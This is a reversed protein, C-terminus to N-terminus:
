GPWRFAALLNAYDDTWVRGDGTAVARWRADVELPAVRGADRTLVVWVSPFRGASWEKPSIDRDDRAFGTLSMEHALRGLVPVLNVYLNSVNFLLIGGPALRSAYIEMAERTVLHVPISDSAFADFVLLDYQEGPPLRAMTLRADGLLVRAEPACERLFTFHAEDRAMRVVVPDIEFFTWEHGPRAYCALTGAGLGLVGVRVRGDQPLLEDFVQGVPGIRAYYSLPELRRGGTLAQVGHITSGHFLLRHERDRDDVVRQVGFFSREIAVVRADLAEAATGVLLLVGLGGAFRVPWPWWLVCLVLPLAFVLAVGGFSDMRLGTLRGVGYLALALLGLAAASVVDRPSITRVASALRPAALLCAALLGIPYEAPTSFVAPAVVVNLVGGLAGGLALWLYFGTLRTPAPRSAALRQHCALGAVFLGALHLPIGIWAPRTADTLILAVPALVALPLLWAMVRDDVRRRQGFAMIFTVLYLALPVVWLLPIAAIDTTMYTTVSLMLSSPVLALLTWRVPGGAESTEAEPATESVVVEPGARFALWGCAGVLLALVSVGASWLRTQTALGLTADILFPYAVLALLSGANSAAYLFYPDGAARHGTSAFWRQLLPATSAVAFFPLGIAWALLGLLAPVPSAAAPPVWGDPISPPLVLLVALVLGLHVLVQRRLRLRAVTLHAYLYGALLATQYFLVCTTWVAPAGGLYPLVLRAFMPQITFLLAASLFLTAAFVWVTM